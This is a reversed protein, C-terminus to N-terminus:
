LRLSLSVKHTHDLESLMGFAYDIQMMQWRVGFGTTLSELDYGAKYGLRLAIINAYWYEAGLHATFDEDNEKVLDLALLGEHAQGMTIKYSGGARAVLPMPDGEEKYKIETGVNQISMGLAANENVALFIGFDAGFATASAEEALTSDFIKLGVGVGLKDMIKIAYGAQAIIDTQSAVKRESGDPEDLIIEGAQLLIMGLGFSGWQNLNQTFMMQGYTSGALGQLYAATIRTGPNFSMAGANWYLSAADDAVATFAEGMGQARAGVAQKLVLAGSTSSAEAPGPGAQM